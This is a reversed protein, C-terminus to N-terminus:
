HWTTVFWSGAGSESLHNSSVTNRVDTMNKFKALIFNFVTYSYHKCEALDMMTWMVSMTM